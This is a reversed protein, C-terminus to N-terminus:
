KKKIKYIVNIEPIIIQLQTSSAARLEELEGRTVTNYAFM